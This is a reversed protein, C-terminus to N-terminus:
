KRWEKAAKIGIARKERLQNVLGEFKDDDLWLDLSASLTIGMSNQSVQLTAESGANHRLDIVGKKDLLLRLEWTDNEKSNGNLLEAESIGLAGAILRVMEASPTARGKEWRWVTNEQVKIADALEEQTLGARKRYYQLYKM